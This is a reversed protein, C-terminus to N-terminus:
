AGGGFEPSGLPELYELDGAEDWRAAPCGDCAHGVAYRGDGSVALAFSESNDSLWEVGGERTWRYADWDCPMNQLGSIVNGDASVGTARTYLEGVGQFDAAQVQVSGLLLLLFASLLIRKQM